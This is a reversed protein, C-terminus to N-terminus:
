DNNHTKIEKYDTIIFRDRQRFVAVLGACYFFSSILLIIGLYGVHRLFASFYKFKM